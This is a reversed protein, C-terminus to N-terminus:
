CENTMPEMLYGSIGSPIRGKLMRNRLKRMLKRVRDETNSIFTEVVPTEGTEEFVAM